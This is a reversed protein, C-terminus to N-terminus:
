GSVKLGFEAANIKAATWDVTDTPEQEHITVAGKMTQSLALDNGENDAPTTGSRCLTRVKMTGTSTNKVAACIQVALVSGTGSFTTVDYTDKHGLTSSENHDTDSALQAEDVMAYNDSGTSPTFDSYTGDAVPYLAKITIDGLFNNNKTGATDCIYFDDVYVRDGNSYVRVQNAYENAGACTDISTENIKTVGDLKVEVSGTTNNFVVKIEIFYWTSTSILAASSVGIQTAGRYVALAGTTLARLECQFTADDLFSIFEYSSNLSDFLFRGGVILTTKNADMNKQMYFASSNEIRVGWGSDSGYGAGYTIASAGYYSDWKVLDYPDDIHGFGDSFLLTM